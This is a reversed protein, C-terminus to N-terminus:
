SVLYVGLVAADPERFAKGIALISNLHAWAPAGRQFTMATRFYYEDPSVPEGEALCAMVEAPGHRYGNSRVEILAGDRFRIVYQASFHLESAQVANPVADTARANMNSIGTKPEAHNFQKLSRSLPAGSLGGASLFHRRTLFEHM